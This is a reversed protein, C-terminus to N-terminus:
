TLKQFATYSFTIQKMELCTGITTKCFLRTLNNCKGCVWSLKSIDVFGSQFLFCVRMLYSYCHLCYLPVFRLLFGTVKKMLHTDDLFQCTAVDNAKISHDVFTLSNTVWKVTCYINTFVSGKCYIPRGWPGKFLSDSDAQPLQDWKGQVIEMSKKRQVTPWLILKM